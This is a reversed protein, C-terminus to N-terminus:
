AFWSMVTLVANLLFVKVTNSFGVGEIRLNGVAELAAGISPNAELYDITEAKAYVRMTPQELEGAIFELIADGNESTVVGIIEEGQGSLDIHFNIRENAFVWKIIGPIVASGKNYLDVYGALRQYYSLPAQEPVTATAAAAVAPMMGMIMCAIIMVATLCRTAFM